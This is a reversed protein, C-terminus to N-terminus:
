YLKNTIFKDTYIMQVSSTRVINREHQMATGPVQVRTGATISNAQM